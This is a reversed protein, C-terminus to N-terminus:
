SQHEIVENVIDFRPIKVYCLNRLADIVLKHFTM